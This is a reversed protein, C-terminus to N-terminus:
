RSVGLFNDPLRKHLRDLENELPRKINFAKCVEVTHWVEATRVAQEHAEASFLHPFSLCVLAWDSDEEYWGRGAFTKLAARPMLKLTEPPVYYGGHGATDVRIIGMGINQTHQAHGWPTNM